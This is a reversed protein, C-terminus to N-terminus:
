FRLGLSQSNARVQRTGVTADGGQGARFNFLGPGTFKGTGNSLRMAASGEKASGLSGWGVQVPTGGLNNYSVSAQADEAGMIVAGAGLASISALKAANKHNLPM